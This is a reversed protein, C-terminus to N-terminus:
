KMGSEVLKMFQDLKPLIVIRTRRNKARGEESENTAVPINEGRGAAIIQSADIGYKSQLLRVVSTARLVSLDWNDAIGKRSIPKNDTHGEVMFQLDKHSNLVQAVKELVSGAAKSVTFSGTEFLLKDSIDVFVASGDVKVQIDQDNIDRLAGKLSLVLAMNLSDKTAIASTLSRIYSEKSNINDLSKKISEAQTSNIVSLEQMQNLLANTQKKLSTIEAELKKIEGSQISKQDLCEDLHRSVLNLSDKLRDYRSLQANFKKKSVCGAALVTALLILLAQFVRKVLM